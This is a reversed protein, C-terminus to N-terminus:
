SEYRTFSSFPFKYKGNILTSTVMQTVIEGKTKLIFKNMKSSNQVNESNYDIYFKNKTERQLMFKSVYSIRSNQKM